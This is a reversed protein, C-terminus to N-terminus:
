YWGFMDNWFSNDSGGNYQSSNKNQTFNNSAPIYEELTLEIDVTKNNRFVTFKVKDGVENDKIAAKIEATTTVETDGVKQVLDGSRFGANDANSGSTVSLVYCGTKNVGYYFATETSNIDVFEMGLDVEGTVYGYNKLDDIIDFM